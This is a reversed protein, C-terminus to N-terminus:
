QTLLVVNERLADVEARRIWARYVGRESRLLGLRRAVPAQGGTYELLLEGDREDHVQFSAGRWECVITVYTISDCETATVARVYRGPTVEDFGDASTSRYLRLWLQEPRPYAAATYEDGRWQARYGHWM